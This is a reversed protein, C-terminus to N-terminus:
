SYYGAREAWDGYRDPDARPPIHFPMPMGGIRTPCCPYYVTLFLKYASPDERAKYASSRNPEVYMVYVFCPNNGNPDYM